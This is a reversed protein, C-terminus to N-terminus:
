SGLTWSSPACSIFSIMLLTFWFVRRYWSYLNILAGCLYNPGLTLIRRDYCRLFSMVSFEDSGGLGEMHTAIMHDDQHDEVGIRSWACHLIWIIPFLLRTGRVLLPESKRVLSLLPLRRKWSTSTRQWNLILEKSTWHNKKETGQKRSVPPRNYRRSFSSM